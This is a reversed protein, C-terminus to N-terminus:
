CNIREWSSHCLIFEFFIQHRFSHEGSGTSDTKRGFMTVNEFFLCEVVHNNKLNVWHVQKACRNITLRFRLVQRTNLSSFFSRRNYLSREFNFLIM